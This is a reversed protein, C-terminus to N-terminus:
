HNAVDLKMAELVSLLSRLGKVIRIDNDRSGNSFMEDVWEDRM